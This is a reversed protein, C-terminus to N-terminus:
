NSTICVTANLRLRDLRFVFPISFGISTMYLAWELFNALDLFYRFRLLYMQYIEKLLHFSSFVMILLPIFGTYDERIHIQHTDNNSINVNDMQGGYIDQRQEWIFLTLCNLFVAYLLFNLGYLVKGFKNWKLALLKRAVPHTLLDQRKYKIMDLLGLYRVGGPGSTDNPGPDLYHFNYTIEVSTSKGKTTTSRQVSRDMILEAAEPFGQILATMPNLSGYGRVNFLEAWRFVFM